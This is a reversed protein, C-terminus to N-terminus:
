GRTPISLKWLYSLVDKLSGLFSPYEEYRVDRKACLERIEPSVEYLRNPPLSPYLHHEIHRDLGGCINQWFRSKIIFNKSSEIQFRYWSDGSKRGFSEAHLTSVQNGVSSCTQLGTFVFNRMICAILTGILVEKWRSGALVAFLGYQYALFLVFKRIEAHDNKPRVGKSKLFHDYDSWHDHQLSELAAM